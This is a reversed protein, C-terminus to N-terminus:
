MTVDVCVVNLRYFLADHFVGAEVLALLPSTTTSVVQYRGACRELWDLLRRQEAQPLAGVDRLILTGSQKPSPLELPDPPTWTQIPQRLNPRLRTLADEIVDDTGMFLLNVRRMRMLHLDIHAARAMPWYARSQPVGNMALILHGTDAFVDSSNEM